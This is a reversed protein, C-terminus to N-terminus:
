RAAALGGLDPRGGLNGVTRAAARSGLDAAAAPGLGDRLGTVLAAIFADGAGTRDVVPVDRLPIFEAGSPWVVMEGQGAVTLVVLDPGASLLEEAAARAADVTHLARGTLLEAEPADARVVNALHLLARVHQTAAGDLVIRLSRARALEAAALTVAPPQQLQICMTDAHDLLGAATARELDAVTVLSSEPVHEYLRRSGDGDVIDVLLASRGRRVVGAATVGDAELQRILEEGDEEGAVAILGARVGLQQLGIAQNAGKGGLVEVRDRVDASGDAEPHRDVRLVVDRGLQGVVVVEVPSAAGRASAEM